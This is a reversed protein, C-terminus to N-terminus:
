KNTNKTKRKLGIGKKRVGARIRKNKNRANKRASKANNMEELAEDGTTRSTLSLEATSPRVSDILARSTAAAPPLKSGTGGCPPGTVTVATDSTVFFYV